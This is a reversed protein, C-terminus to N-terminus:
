ATSPSCGGFQIKQPHSSTFDALRPRPTSAVSVSLQMRSCRSLSDVRVWLVAGGGVGLGGVWGVGGGKGCGPQRMRAWPAPPCRTLVVSLSALAQSRHTDSYAVRQRGHQRMRLDRELRAGGGSGWMCVYVSPALASVVLTMSRHM